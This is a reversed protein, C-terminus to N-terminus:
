PLMSGIGVIEHKGNNNAVEIIEESLFRTGAQFYSNRITLVPFAVYVESYTQIRCKGFLTIENVDYGFVLEGIPKNDTTIIKIGQLLSIICLIIRSIVKDSVPKFGLKLFVTNFSEKVEFETFIPKITLVANIDGLNDLIFKTRNLYDRIHGRDKQRHALFNAFEYVPSGKRSHPRLLILLIYVDKEDIFEM